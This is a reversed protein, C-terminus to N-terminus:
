PCWAAVTPTLVVIRSVGPGTYTIRLRNATVDDNAVVRSTIGAPLARSNIDTVLAETLTATGCADAFAVQEPGEISPNATTALSSNPFFYNDSRPDDSACTPASTSFGGAGSCWTYTAARTRIDAVDSDIQSQLDNISSSSVVMRNTGNWLMAAAATTTALLVIAVLLELLSFAGSSQDDASILARQISPHFLIRTPTTM